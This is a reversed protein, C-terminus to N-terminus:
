TITLSGSRKVRTYINSYINYEAIVRYHSGARFDHIIQPEGLVGSLRRLTVLFMHMTTLPRRVTVPAHPGKLKPPEAM